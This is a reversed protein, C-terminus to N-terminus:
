FSGLDCSQVTWVGGSLSPTDPKFARTFIPFSLDETFSRFYFPTNYARSHDKYWSRNLNLGQEGVQTGLRQVNLRLRVLFDKM